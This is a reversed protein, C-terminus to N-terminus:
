VEPIKFNVVVPNNLDAVTNEVVDASIVGRDTVLEDSCETNNLQPSQNLYLGQSFESVNKLRNFNSVKNQDVISVTKICEFHILYM